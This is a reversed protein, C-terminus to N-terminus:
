KRFGKFKNLDAYDILGADTYKYNVSGQVLPVLYDYFEQTVGSNDEKIWELPFKKEFNALLYLDCLEFHSSYGNNNDRKIIVAKHSEGNAANSVAFRGVGVAENVDTLSSVHSASRQLLGFEIVRIRLEPNENLLKIKLIEGVGGLQVHGFSDAAKEAFEEHLYKGEANKVGESVAIVVQKQTKLVRTLDGMLGDISIPKEPIYILDPGNGDLSALASSATLWGANRGMIEFILVSRTDYSSLDKKAESVSTAVFKACSGFGPTHDTENLDNDITKPVGIIRCEYNVKKCFNSIKTCTDMSDNGGIYFFYRINYKKFIELIRLYDSEDKEYKRLSYRCTGFLAGPTYVLKEIEELDDNTIEILDDNLAGKIGHHLAYVNTINENALAEKIIGYASANIVSTPGGSQGFLCAGKLAM